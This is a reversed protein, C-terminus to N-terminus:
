DAKIALQENLVKTLIRRFSYRQEETYPKPGKTRHGAKRLQGGHYRQALLLDINDTTYEWASHHIVRAKALVLSALGYDQTVLIDYKQILSVIRFDAMDQGKDVYVVSVNAPYEKTTFHDVSTVIVVEVQHNTAIEVVDQKVPSADGDIFIKM